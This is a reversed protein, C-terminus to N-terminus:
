SKRGSKKMPRLSNLFFDAVPYVDVIRLQKVAETVEELMADDFNGDETLSPIIYIAVAEPIAEYTFKYKGIAAAFLIKQGLRELEIDKPIKVTKGMVRFPKVTGKSYGKPDEIYFQVMKQLDAEINDTSNMLVHKEVGVLAALLGVVDGSLFEPKIFHGVKVEEWCDPVQLSANEFKIKLSM